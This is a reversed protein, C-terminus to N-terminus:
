DVQAVIGCRVLLSTIDGMDGSSYLSVVDTFFGYRMAQKLEERSMYGIKEQWSTGIQVWTRSTESSTANSM